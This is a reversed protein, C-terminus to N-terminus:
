DASSRCVQAVDYMRLAEYRRPHSRHRRGSRGSQSIFSHLGLPPRLPLAHPDQRGPHIRGVQGVVSGGDLGRFMEAPTMVVRDARSVLVALSRAQEQVLFLGFREILTSKGVGPAGTFGLRLSSPRKSSADSSAAALRVFLENALDRDAPLRSEM